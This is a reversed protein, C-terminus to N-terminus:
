QRDLGHPDQYVDLHHQLFQYGQLHGQIWYNCRLNPTGLYMLHRLHILLYRSRHAEQVLRAVTSDVVM